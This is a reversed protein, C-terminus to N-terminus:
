HTCSRVLTNLSPFYSLPSPAGEGSVNVLIVDIKPSTPILINQGFKKKQAASMEIFELSNNRFLILKLGVEDRCAVCQRCTRAIPPASRANCTTGHEARWRERRVEAWM